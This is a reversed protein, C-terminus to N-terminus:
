KGHQRLSKSFIYSMFLIIFGSFIVDSLFHGGEAIRTLGLLFGFFLSGYIYVAKNTIFYLVIISFGVAADGSVFSCNTACADSIKYWATFSEKGGFELIDGPRARGSFNKLFLNTIILLNIVMAFWIYFFDKMVFGHNFFIKKVPLVKSIIPIILIYILILPMLVERIIITTIHFSQLLFQKEGLYFVSSFFLDISPGVTILISTLLFVILINVFVSKNYVNLSSPRLYSLKKEFFSNLIKFVIISLIIGALVDTFYHAGVVVRSTAILTGVFYIVYKIKPFFIGALLSLIFATSAHGSPFSHFNSNTTFFDFNFGSDFNAHNPRVRGVLHKIIQTVIGTVSLYIVFTFFCNKAKVFKKASLVKCIKLVFSVLFFITCILFYWLSDGLETINVFFDKLNGLKLNQNLRDLYANISLDLNHYVFISIFILGFIGLEIKINKIVRM